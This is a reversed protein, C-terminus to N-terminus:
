SDRWGPASCHLEVIRPRARAPGPPAALAVAAPNNIALDKVQQNAARSPALDAMEVAGQHHGPEPGAGRGLADGRQRQQGGGQRTVPHAQHGGDRVADGPGQHLAEDVLHDALLVVDRRIDRVGHAPQRSEPWPDLQGEFTDM